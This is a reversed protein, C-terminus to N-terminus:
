IKIYIKDLESFSIERAQKKGYSLVLGNEIVTLYDFKNNRYTTRDVYKTTITNM